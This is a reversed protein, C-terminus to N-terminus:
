PAFFGEIYEGEATNELRWSDGHQAWKFQRPLPEGAMAQPLYLWLLRKPPRGRGSFRKDQMPIRAEWATGATQAVLLSFPTKTFQVFTRGSTTTAVLLEGALEPAKAGAKWVAQGQRVTWAGQALDVVPLPSITNCGPLLPICILFLLLLTRDRPVDRGAQFPL